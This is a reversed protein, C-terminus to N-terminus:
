TNCLKICGIEVTLRQFREPSLIDVIVYPFKRLSAPFLFSLHKSFPLGISINALSGEPTVLRTDNSILRPRPIQTKRAIFM